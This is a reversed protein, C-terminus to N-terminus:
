IRAYGGSKSGNTSISKKEKDVTWMKSISSRSWELNRVALTKYKSTDIYEMFFMHVPRDDHQHRRLQDNISGVVRMVNPQEWCDLKVFESLSLYCDHIVYPVIPRGGNVRIEDLRRQIRVEKDILDRTSYKKIDKKNTLVSTYDYVTTDPGVLSIKMCFKNFSLGDLTFCGPAKKLGYFVFSYTSNDSILELRTDTGLLLEFVPLGHHRKSSSTHSLSRQRKSSSM